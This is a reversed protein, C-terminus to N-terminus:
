AWRSAARNASSRPWGRPILAADPRGTRRDLQAWVEAYSGGVLEGPLAQQWIGAAPEDPEHWVGTGAYGHAAAGFTRGDDAPAHGPTWFKFHIDKM